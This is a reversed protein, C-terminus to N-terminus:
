EAAKASKKDVPRGRGDVVLYGMLQGTAPDVHPVRFTPGGEIENTRLKRATAESQAQFRVRADQLDMPSIPIQGMGTNFAGVPVQPLEPAAPVSIQKALEEDQAEVKRKLREIEAVLNALQIDGVEGPSLPNRNSGGDGTGEASTFVKDKDAKKDMEEAATRGAAEFAVTESAAVTLNDHPAAVGVGKARTNEFAAQEVNSVNVAPQTAAKAAAADAQRNKSENAM